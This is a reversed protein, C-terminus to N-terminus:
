AEQEEAEPGTGLEIRAFRGIRINEGLEAITQTLLESIQIDEDKVFPQNLLCVEGFYKNLKGEVIKDIVNDPKGQARAEEAFAARQAEMEEEPIDEPAAYKPNAFAVHLALDRALQQFRDTNAVFDTECNVEVLVGIRGGPHGYAEVKGERVIRDAKKAAKALGRENLYAKAKDLDGDTEELAKKCDLVAAGTADRLEKVLKADVAM